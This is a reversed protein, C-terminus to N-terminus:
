SCKQTKYVMAPSNTTYNMHVIIIVCTSTATNNAHMQLQM